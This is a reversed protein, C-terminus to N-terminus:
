FVVNVVMVCEYDFLGDLIMMVGDKFCGINNDIILWNSMVGCVCCGGGIVMLGYLFIILILKDDIIWYYNLFVQFKYYYNYGYGSGVVEGNIYGYGNNFCGGDFSNKYDEIYYMILCQNYWQFVGFVILLLKYYDNIVKLINGFYIWGEYNIGKVYGDGM